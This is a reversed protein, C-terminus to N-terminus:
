ALESADWHTAFAKREGAFVDYAFMGLRRRATISPDLQRLTGAAANRPNAFRPEGAEERERNIREFVKRPLYAEGRVEIENAVKKAKDNLKLPISRITRVNSTVDEGRSGDGRTVGRVFLGGEYHVALSLGDIKLEAVYELSKGGALKRCRADFARLEDINYSNDLSLM